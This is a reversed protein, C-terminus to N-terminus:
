MLDKDEKERRVKYALYYFLVIPIANLIIAAKNLAPHDIVQYVLALLFITGGALYLYFFKYSM